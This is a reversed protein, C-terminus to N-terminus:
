PTINLYLIPHIVRSVQYWAAARGTENLVRGGTRSKPVRYGLQEERQEQARQAMRQGKPTQAYAAQAAREKERAAAERAAAEERAQKERATREQQLKERRARERQQVMLEAGRTVSMVKEKKKEGTAASVGRMVKGAM